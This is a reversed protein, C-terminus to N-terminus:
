GYLARMQERRHPFALVDTSHSMQDVGGLYRPLVTVEPDDIQEWIALAFREAHIVLYPRDHFESTKPYIGETIGLKNHMAAVYEYANCLHDQRLRWSRADLIAEFIPMLDPACDLKSFATGLWKAYPAYSKEMLFCLRIMDQVLQAAILRSGIEDGVDGARGVFAEIQGIRRWQASLLYLWIDQPYYRLGEQVKSFGLDDHYV